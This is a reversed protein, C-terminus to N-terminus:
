IKEKNEKEEEEIQEQWYLVALKNVLYSVLGRVAQGFKKQEDEIKDRYNRLRGVCHKVPKQGGRCDKFDAWLGLEEHGLEMPDFEGDHGSFHGTSVEGNKEADFLAQIEQRFDALQEPTFDDQGAQSPSPAEETM